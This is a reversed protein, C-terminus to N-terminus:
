EVRGQDPLLDQGVYQNFQELPLHMNILAQYIMQMDLGLKEMGGVFVGLREKKINWVRHKVQHNFLYWHNKELTVPIVEDKYLFETPHNDTLICCVSYQRNVDTHWNEAGPPFIRQLQLERFNVKFRPLNIETQIKYADNAREPYEVLAGYHSIGPHYGFQMKYLHENDILRKKLEDALHQRMPAWPLQMPTVGLM